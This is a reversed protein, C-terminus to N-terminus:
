QSEESLPHLRNVLPFYARKMTVGAQWIGHAMELAKTANLSSAVPDAGENIAEIWNVSLLRNGGDIAEASEVSDVQGQGSQPWSEWVESRDAHAPASPKLLSLVPRSGAFLRMRSKTGVFEMGAPGLSDRHRPDSTFSVRIGRDMVFEAHITDGLLLGLDTTASEHADEAIAAIGDKSISATCYSVEGAFWRVLDFLPVGHLLLDEGGSTEDCAGWTRIEVLTGIWSELERQFQILGPDLRMPYRVALRTQTATEIARIEDAEKLTRALPAECIVHVGAEMAEKLLSRRNSTSSSAVSIFDPSEAELLATLDSYGSTAGARLLSKELGSEDLDALGFLRVGDLRQFMTDMAHGYGGGRSDGVVAARWGSYPSPSGSNEQPDSGFREEVVAVDDSEAPQGSSEAPLQPVSLKRGGKRTQSRSMMGAAAM